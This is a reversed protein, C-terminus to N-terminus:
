GSKAVAAPRKVPEVKMVLGRRDAIMDGFEGSQLRKVHLKVLPDRPYRQALQTFVHAAAADDDAMLAYAAAYEAEPVCEELNASFLPQYVKLWQSKGKLVLKGVPRAHVGPAGSLTPESICVLTGLLKNVAELRAATNV